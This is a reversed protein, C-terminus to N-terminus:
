CKLFSSAEHVSVATGNTNRHPIEHLKDHPASINVIAASGRCFFIGHLCSASHVPFDLLALARIIMRFDGHLVSHLLLIVLYQHLAPCVADNLCDGPDCNILDFTYVHINALQLLRERNM